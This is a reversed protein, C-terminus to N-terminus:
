WWILFSDRTTGTLEGYSVWFELLVRSGPPQGAFSLSIRSVGREDTVPMLLTREAQPFRIQVTVAAGRVPNLNQDRVLLYIDQTDDARVVPKRVASRPRLQLVRYELRDSPLRPRLLSRDYSQSEFHIRGLPAVRVRGGSPDDPHWDLRFGQFYQVIRDGEIKFESIPYGFVQPGGYRDYFDLFAHCVGHGSERYYRCGADSGFPIVAEPEPPDWGGLMEGLASLRVEGQTRGPPIAWELRANQFYQTLRGSRPDLFADTIPYGFVAVGGRGDFHRIFRADVTHGTEPYYRGLDQALAPFGLAAAVIGLAVL